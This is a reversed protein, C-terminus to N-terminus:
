QEAPEPITAAVVPEPEAAAATEAAERAAAALRQDHHRRGETIAEVLLGTVYTVAKTADDNSPIPFQIPAPNVNTDCMALIPINVARAERVATKETKIDVVFIAQPLREMAGLGGVLKELRTIEAEFDLQEKKTYKGLEGSARQTKLRDLSIILQRVHSFNTFLGGIWRDVVYPMGATQAATIIIDRAQRKTGVFLVTGGGAVVEQAYAGAQTLLTKTKELNIISVGGRTTFIFPDMKPHRRSQQHGFHLGAKLMDLLVIDRM